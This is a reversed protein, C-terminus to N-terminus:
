LFLKTEKIHHKSITLYQPWSFGIIEVLTKLFKTTIFAFASSPGEEFTGVWIESHIAEKKAKTAVNLFHTWDLSELITLSELFKKKEIKNFHAKLFHVSTQKGILILLM